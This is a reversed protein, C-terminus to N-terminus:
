GAEMMELLRTMTTLNRATGGDGVARNVAAWLRSDHIGDKCWLYATRGRLALAEPRWDEHSLPELHALAEGDRLALLLLRSPDKAVSALPNAEIADTLGTRDLLIVPVHFGFRELIAREIRVTPDGSRAGAQTFVVNGSNLLTRVDQFGLETFVDRLEAMPVRKAKGVNVGRLLAARRIM